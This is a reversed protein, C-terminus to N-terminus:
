SSIMVNKFDFNIRIAIRFHEFNVHFSKLVILFHNIQVYTTSKKVIFVVYILLIANNSGINANIHYSLKLTPYSRSRGLLKDTQSM